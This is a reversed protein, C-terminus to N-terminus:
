GAIDNLGEYLFDIGQFNYYGLPQNIEVPM